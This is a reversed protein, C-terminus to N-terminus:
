DLERLIAKAEVTLYDVNTELWFDTQLCHCAEYIMSEDINHGENEFHIDMTKVLRGTIDSGYNMKTPTTFQIMGSVNVEAGDSKDTLECEEIRWSYGICGIITRIWESETSDCELQWVTDDIISKIKEMLWDERTLSCDENIYVDYQMKAKYSFDLRYRPMDDIGWVNLLRLQNLM